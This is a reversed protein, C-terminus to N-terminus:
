KELFIQNIKEMLTEPTFPKVIYNNVKNKVAEIVNENQGEATVMLFPTDKWEESTRVAKLLEIGSMQPM